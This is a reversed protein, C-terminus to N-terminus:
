GNFGYVREKIRNFNRETNNFIAKVVIFKRDINWKNKPNQCDIIEYSFAM